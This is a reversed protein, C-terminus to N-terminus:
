GAAMAALRVALSTRRCSPERSASVFEYQTPPVPKTRNTVCSVVGPNSYANSSDLKTYCKKNNYVAVECAPNAYCAACCADHSTSNLVPGASYYDRGDVFSCSPAVPAANCDGGSHACQGIASPAKRPVVSMDDDFLGHGRIGTFGCEDHALKLHARWDSRTGLLMHGSGVCRKWFHEFPTSASLDIVGSTLPVTAADATGLALALALGLSPM